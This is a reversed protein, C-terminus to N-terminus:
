AYRLDVRGAAAATSPRYASRNKNRETADITRSMWM